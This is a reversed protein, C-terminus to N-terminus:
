GGARVAERVRTAAEQRSLRGALLEGLVSEVTPVPQPQSQSSAIPAGGPQTSRWGVLHESIASWGYLAALALGTLFLVTGSRTVEGSTDLPANLAATITTVLAMAAGIAASLIGGALLALVFARRPGNVSTRGTVVRLYLSIPIYVAGVLVVALPSAWGYANSQFSPNTLIEAVRLATMFVGVWFFLAAAAAVVSGIALDTAEPGMRSVAREWRLWLIYVGAALLGVLIVPLIGALLDSISVGQQPAGLLASLALNLLNNLGVIATISGVALGLLQQTQRLASSTDNRTLLYYLGFLAVCFAANLWPGLLNVQPCFQQGNPGDVFCGGNEPPFITARLTTNLAIGVTVMAYALVVLQIANFHLRQFVIAAGRGAQTRRREFEAVLLISYAAAAASLQPVASPSFSSFSERPTGLVGLGSVAFGIGVWGAEFEIANLFFSRVGGAGAGPDTALDRRILYYHVGGLVGAILWAVGALVLAQTMGTSDPPPNGGNLPTYSLVQSLLAGLGVAALILMANFVFYYYVRAFSRVM